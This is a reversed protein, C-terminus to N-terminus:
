TSSGKIRYIYIYVHSCVMLIAICREPFLVFLLVLLLFPFAPLFLLLLFSLFFFSPCCPSPLPSVLVRKKGWSRWTAADITEYGESGPYGACTSTGQDSYLGLSLNRAALYDGIVKVGSAKPGFPVFIFSLLHLVRSIQLHENLSTKEQVTRHTCRRTQLLWPAHGTIPTHACM